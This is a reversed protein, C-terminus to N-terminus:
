GEGCFGVELITRREEGELDGFDQLDLVGFVEAGGDTSGVVVNWRGVGGMKAGARM